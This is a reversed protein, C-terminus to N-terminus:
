LMGNLCLFLFLPMASSMWLRPVLLHDLPWQLVQDAKSRPFLGLITCFSPPGLLGDPHIFLSFKLYIFKIGKYTIKIEGNWKWLWISSSPWYAYLITCALKVHYFWTQWVTNILKYCCGKSVLWLSGRWFLRVSVEYLSALSQEVKTFDMMQFEALVNWSKAETM